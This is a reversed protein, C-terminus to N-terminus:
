SGLGWGRRLEASLLARRDKKVTTSTDADEGVLLVADDQLILDAQKALRAMQENAWKVGLVAGQEYREGDEATFAYPWTGVEVCTGVRRGDTLRVAKGLPSDALFQKRLGDVDEDTLVYLGYAAHEALPIM